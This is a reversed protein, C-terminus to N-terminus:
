DLEDILQDLNDVTLNEHLVENILACPASGCSGLCEVKMLTFKGDPTTEGVNIGLKKKLAGTIGQEGMLECSISQCIWFVYKGKPELWFEEYFTATDLVTSPQLELFDAIEEIVQPPLWGVRHQMAHLMPLTAAQRTPYRSIIEREYQQKLEETLYPEDQLATKGAASNKTIWAM